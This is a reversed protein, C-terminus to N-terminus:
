VELREFTDNYIPTLGKQTKCKVHRNWWLQWQTHIETLSWCLRHKKWNLQLTLLMLTRTLLMLNSLVSLMIHKSINYVVYYTQCAYKKYAYKLFLYLYRYYNQTSLNLLHLIFATNTQWVHPLPNIIVHITKIVITKNDLITKMVM